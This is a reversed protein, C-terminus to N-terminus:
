EEPIDHFIYHAHQQHHGALRQRLRQVFYQRAAVVIFM